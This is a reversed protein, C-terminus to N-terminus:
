NYVTPRQYDLTHLIYFDLYISTSGDMRFNKTSFSLFKKFLQHKKTFKISINEKIYLQVDTKDEKSSNCTRVEFM